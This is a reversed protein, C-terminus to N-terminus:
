MGDKKRYNVVFNSCHHMCPNLYSVKLYTRTRISTLISEKIWAQQILYGSLKGVFQRSSM